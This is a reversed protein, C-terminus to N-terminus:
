FLINQIFREIHPTNKRSKRVAVVIERSFRPLVAIRRVQRRRSYLALSRQPVFSCGLGLAVLNIILDFNDMEHAAGCMWGQTTMWKTLRCGTQSAADIMLWNQAALRKQVTKKSSKEPLSIGAHRPAILIFSDQFRHTIALRTSLRAPPCFIGIDLEDSELQSQISASSEHKILLHTEPDRRQSAFIFGPFYALSISRSVGLRIRKPGELYEERLRRLSSDIDGLIHRTQEILFDGAPTARVSRTTREFLSLGVKAEVSQIQRTVASQTLGAARAVRTFSGLQALLHLMHLEFLGFPATAIYENENQM